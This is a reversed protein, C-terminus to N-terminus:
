RLEEMPTVGLVQLGSALTLAAARALALRAVTVDIADKQIFRLTLDDNGTNWLTHFQAAAEQLFYAVRHPERTQAASEVVRPWQMLLRMLAVEQEGTLLAIREQGPALSLAVAEPADEAAMRLLSHCRAHAYQVYFVPNDRSQQTVKTLDFELQQEPKRTLMIFRVVDKGVADIVDRVTTFTGKRKSMKIPQGEDMFKVLQCLLVTMEAKGGSLAAAAAAMRKVYGGHDAGLVLVQRLFGREMKHRLYAVDAAFYTWSGDSKQLPRDCDDGFSSTRFLVQERPEWDDPTKGKPPELVGRYVHGASELEVLAEGIRGAAHLSRESTFVDHRIGLDALDSRIMAMMSELTFDRVREFWHEEDLSLLTDGYADRLGVGIPVLYDGPYQLASFDVEQGCAERYRGYASHALATIQAGADNIYYEKTVAYGAKTLLNALADGVVAGRAHGIHMPGTPNASVYEVNVAAGAGSASDGYALGAELIHTLSRHLIEPKLRLNLFGPGATEVGAVGEAERLKESLRAAIAQPPQALPRALVMAANTSVDGHSADRPPEVSLSDRWGNEAALEPFTTEISSTIVERLQSFINM